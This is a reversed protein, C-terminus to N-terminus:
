MRGVPTPFFSYTLGATLTLLQHITIEGAPETEIEGDKIGKMVRMDKFEPLYKSIPDLLLFHGEEFLIM